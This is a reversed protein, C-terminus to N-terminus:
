CNPSWRNRRKLSKLDHNRYVTIVSEDDVSCVVQMGEVRGVDLGERRCFQAERHGFAYIVAGRVHYSRGYTMVTAVDDSSFRRSHMRERAHTTLAPEFRAPSQRAAYGM